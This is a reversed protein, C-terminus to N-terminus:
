TKLTFIRKTNRNRRQSENIEGNRFLVDTQILQGKQDYMLDFIDCITFSIDNLYSVVESAMPAGINYVSTQLELLLYEAEKITKDGGKIIDLEAGQVDMKILDYQKDVLSDLTRCFRLEPEFEFSTNEKYIGNGTPVGDKCKYYSVQKGNESGLVSIFAEDIEQLLELKETNAEILTFSSTTFIEKAM